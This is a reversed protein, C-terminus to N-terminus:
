DIVWTQVFIVIIAIISIIGKVALFGATEIRVPPLSFIGAIIAIVGIIATTLHTFSGSNLGYKISRIKQFNAELVLGAGIVLMLGAEVYGGMDFDFLTESVIGLFGLISVISLATIFRHTLKVKEGKREAGLAMGPVQNQVDGKM